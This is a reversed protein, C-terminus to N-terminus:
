RRQIAQIAKRAEQPTSSLSRLGGSLLDPQDAYPKLLPLAERALPGLSALARISELRATTDFSYGYYFDRTMIKDPFDPRLPRLLLPVTDAAAPGLLTVAHAACAVETAQDSELMKRVAPLIRPTLGIKMLTTLMSTSSYRPNGNTDKEGALLLDTLLPAAEQAGPGIASLTWLIMSVNPRARKMEGDSKLLQILAPVASAARSGLSTLLTLVHDRLREDDAQLLASLEPVVEASAAGFEEFAKEYDLAIAPDQKRAAQILVLAAERDGQPGLVALTEIAARRLWVEPRHTVIGTLLPVAAGAQTGALRVVALAAYLAPLRRTDSRRLVTLAQPLALSPLGEIHAIATFAASAPLPSPSQLTQRLLPLASKAASGMKGLAEVVAEPSRGAELARMLAPISVTAEPLMRSLAGALTPTAVPSRSLARALLPAASHAEPGMHSLAIATQELLTNLSDPRELCRRLTRKLAEIAVPDDPGIQSLATTLGWWIQGGNTGSGEVAGVDDLLRALDPLAARAATGYRALGEVAHAIALAEAMSRTRRQLHARFLPVGEAPPVPLQALQFLAAGQEDENGQELQKRAATIRQATQPGTAQAHAAPLLGLMGLLLSGLRCYHLIRM